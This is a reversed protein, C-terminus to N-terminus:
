YNMNGDFKKSMIFLKDERFIDLILGQQCLMSIFNNQSSKTITKTWDSRWSGSKTVEHVAACLVERDKKDWPSQEFEHGKLGHHWVVLEDEEM